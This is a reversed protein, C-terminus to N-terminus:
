KNATPSSVELSIRSVNTITMNNVSYTATFPSALLLSAESISELPLDSITSLHVGSANVKFNFTNSSICLSASVQYKCRSKLVTSNCNSCRGLTPTDSLLILNGKSCLFCLHGSCFKTVATISADQLTKTNKSSELLPLAKDLNDVEEIILGQKPTFLSNVENYSKVILNTFNYSKDLQISDINAEWLSLKARGKSDSIVVNQVRRGDNLTIIEDLEIVKASLSIKQFAPQDQLKDLTIMKCEPEQSFSAEDINFTKESKAIDTGDGVLIEFQEGYRSTKVCCNTLTVPQQDKAFQQLQKAKATNFGVFRLKKKGDSVFGDFFKKDTTGKIPSVSTVVHMVMVPKM